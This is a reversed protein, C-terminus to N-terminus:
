DARRRSSPPRRPASHTRPGRYPADGSRGERGGRGEAPRSRGEQPRTRGETPRPGRVPALPAPPAMKKSYWDSCLISTASAVNLSEVADTGPIRITVDAADWIEQSVGVSESGLVLVTKMPWHLQELGKKAHSSTSIIRYGAKRFDALSECLNRCAILNVQEAGGEATRLASANKLSDPNETLIHKVGFHACIRMLSGLNHPNDVGDVALVMDLKKSGYRELWEDHRAHQKKRTVICVEEHHTSQTIKEFEDKPRIHYVLHKEVCFRMLESFTSKTKNSLYVRIIEDPRERFVAKCANIGYVSVEEQSTRQTHNAM